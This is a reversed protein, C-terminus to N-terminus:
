EIILRNEEELKLHVVQLHNLLTVVEDISKNRSFSVFLRLQKAKENRFTPEVGYHQKLCNAIDLMTVNDFVFYEPTVDSDTQPTTEPHPLSSPEIIHDVPQETAEKEETTENYIYITSAIAGLGLTCLLAIAAARSMWGQRRPTTIASTAMVKQEFHKWEQDIDPMGIQHDIDETKM